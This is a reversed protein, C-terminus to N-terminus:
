GDPMCIEDTGIRRLLLDLFLLGHLLSASEMEGATMLRTILRGSMISTFLLQVV